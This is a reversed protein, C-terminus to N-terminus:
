IKLNQNKIKVNARLCDDRKQKIKKQQSIIIQNQSVLKRKSNNMEKQMAEKASRSLHLKQKLRKMNIKESDINEKMIKVKELFIKSDNEFKSVMQKEVLITNKQNQIINRNKEAIKKMEKIQKDLIQNAIKYNKDKEENEKKKKHITLKQEEIIKKDRESNIKYNKIEDNLKQNEVHYHKEKEGM